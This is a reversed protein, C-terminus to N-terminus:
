HAMQGSKMLIKVIIGTMRGAASEVPTTPERVMWSTQREAALVLMNKLMWREAERKWHADATEPSGNDEAM